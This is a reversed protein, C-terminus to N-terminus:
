SRSPRRRHPTWSGVAMWSTGPSCLLNALAVLLVALGAISRLGISRLGITGLFERLVFGLASPDTALGCSCQVPRLFFM